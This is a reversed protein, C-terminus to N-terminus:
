YNETLVCYENCFSNMYRICEMYYKHFIEEKEEDSLPKEEEKSYPPSPLFDEYKPSQGFYVSDLQIFIMELRAKINKETYHSYHFVKRGKTLCTLEGSVVHYVREVNHGPKFSKREPQRTQFNGM